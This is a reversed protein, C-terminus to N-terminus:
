SLEKRNPFVAPIIEQIVSYKSCVKKRKKKKNMDHRGGGSNSKLNKQFSTSVQTRLSQLPRTAAKKSTIRMIVKESHM